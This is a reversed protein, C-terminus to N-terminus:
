QRCIKNRLGRLDDKNLGLFRPQIFLMIMVVISYFLGSLLFSFITMDKLGLGNDVFIMTIFAIILLVAVITVQHVIYRWFPLGLLRTNFWLQVNVIIFQLTVMKVALGTAGLNLGMKDIPATLFYIAPLGILTFFIGINRYLKTKGTAFFVAGSLQGYTQHIPYFAMITLPLLASNFEEGGVILIVKKAEMALFCAFYAAIGYLLPIHRRFLRAMEKLNKGGYAISFERTILPTMASTFIFCIAGIKYSLSFFGQEISGSFYQLLWRDLIGVILGVLGYIFLPASYNYFSKAYAKIQNISLKWSQLLSHGTRGMVGIFLFGLLLLIFYHYFFFSMLNLYKTLFLVLIITLGIIRQIIKAIEAEVTVGYADTMKNLIQSMKIIICWAAALYIYIPLQDPLFASYSDTVHIGGVFLLLFICAMSTFGFYFSVLGFDQQKQSLRTYFCSSTGMDLFNVIKTFFDTLFNFDGYIKPGLARPILTETVLSIAMGIINASLKAIYRKKLPDEKKL